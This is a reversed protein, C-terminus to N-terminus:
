SLLKVLVTLLQLMPILHLGDPTALGEITLVSKGDAKIAPLTCSRVLKGDVLVNCSGCHGSNCAIKTGILNLDKRLFDALSRKEDVLLSHETGNVTIQINRM